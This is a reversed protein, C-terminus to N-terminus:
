AKSFKGETLRQTSSSSTCALSVRKDPTVARCTTRRGADVSERCSGTDRRGRNRRLTCFLARESGISDEIYVTTTLNVLIAKRYHFKRAKVNTKHPQEKYLTRLNSRRSKRVVFWGLVDLWLSVDGVSCSGELELTVM